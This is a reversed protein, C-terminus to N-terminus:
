VRRLSAAVPPELPLPESEREAEPLARMLEEITPSM